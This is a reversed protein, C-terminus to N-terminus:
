TSAAGRRVIRCGPISPCPRPRPTKEKRETLAKVYFPSSCVCFTRCVRSGCHALDGRGRRGQAVLSGSSQSREEHGARIAIGIEGAGGGGRQQVAVVGHRRLFQLE